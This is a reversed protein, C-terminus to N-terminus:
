IHILSLDVCLVRYGARSLSISLCLSYSRSTRDHMGAVIITSRGREPDSDDFASRLKRDIWELGYRAQPSSLQGEARRRNFLAEAGLLLEICAGELTSAWIAGALISHAALGDFSALAHVLKEVPVGTSGPSAPVGTEPQPSEVGQVPPTSRIGLDQIAQEMTRGRARSAQIMEITEVDAVTYRRQNSGSRLPQPLGFRREWSRITNDPVGTIEVVQKITYVEEVQRRDRHEVSSVDRFPM